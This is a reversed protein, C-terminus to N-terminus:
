QVEITEPSAESLIIAQMTQASSFKVEIVTQGDFKNALVYSDAATLPDLITTLRNDVAAGVAAWMNMNNGVNSQIAYIEEVSLVSGLRVSSTITNWESPTFIGGVEVGRYAIRQVANQQKAYINYQKRKGINAWVPVISFSTLGGTMGSGFTTTGAYTELAFRIQKKVPLPAAINWYGYMTAGTAVNIDDVVVESQTAAVRVHTDAYDDHHKAWHSFIALQDLCYQDVDMCVKGDAYAKFSKIIQSIRALNMGAGVTTLKADFIFGALMKGDPVDFVWDLSGPVNYDDPTIRASPYTFTPKETKVSQQQSM